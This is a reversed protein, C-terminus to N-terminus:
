MTQLNKRAQAVAKPDFIIDNKPNCAERRAKEDPDEEEPEEESSDDEEEDEDEDDESSLLLGGEEPFVGALEFAVDFEEGSQQGCWNWLDTAFGTRMEFTLVTDPDDGNGMQKVQFHDIQTRPAETPTKKFLNEDGMTVNVAKVVHTATVTEGSRMVFDRANGLWEPLNSVQDEGSGSLHMTCMMKIRKQKTPKKGVLSTASRLIIRRLIKDNFWIGEM